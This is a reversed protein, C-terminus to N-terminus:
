KVAIKAFYAGQNNKMDKDNIGLYLRGASDARFKLEKGVLFPKGQQGLKGILAGHMADSTVNYTRWILKTIPKINPDKVGNPTCPTKKNIYVEGEARVIIEQGKNVDIGTDIWPKTGSVKVEREGPKTASKGCACLGLVLIGLVLCRILLQGKKM